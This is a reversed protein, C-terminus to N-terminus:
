CLTVQCFDTVLKTAARCHTNVDGLSSEIISMRQELEFAEQKAIAETKEAQLKTAIAEREKRQKAEAERLASETKAEAERLAREAKAEAERLAREANAEAERLARRALTVPDDPFLNEFWTTSPSFELERPVLTLQHRNRELLPLIFPCFVLDKFDLIKWAYVYM